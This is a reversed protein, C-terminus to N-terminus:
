LLNFLFASPVTSPFGHLWLPPGRICRYLAFRSVTNPNPLSPSLILSTPGFGKKGRDKLLYLGLIPFEISFLSCVSHFFRHFTHSWGVINPIVLRNSARNILLSSLFCQLINTPSRVPCILECYVSCLIPLASVGEHLLHPVPFSVILCIRYLHGTDFLTLICSAKSLTFICANVESQISGFWIFFPSDLRHQSERYCPQVAPYGGIFKFTLIPCHTSSSHEVSRNPLWKQLM